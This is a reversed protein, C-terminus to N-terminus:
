LNNSVNKIKDLEESFDVFPFKKNFHLIKDNLSQIFLKAEDSEPNRIKHNLSNIIKKVEAIYDITERTLYTSSFKEWIYEIAIDNPHTLDKSYFRYDRLDDMLIEYSPFYFVNECERVLKEVALLLTAKSRQNEIAGDKLHRVPSVTLLVRIQPNLMRLLKISRSLSATTERIDIKRRRFETAPIKHCNSVVEGTKLYEYVWATGLTFIVIDTKDIFDITRSIASNIKKLVTDVNHNSFTSHHAFSHYEGNHFILDEETFYKKDYIIKISNSISVPNYLVGFPNQLIQFKYNIFKEAINDAFCSGFTIIKSTPLIKVASKEPTIETRFKM